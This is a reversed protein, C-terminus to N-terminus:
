RPELIQHLHSPLTRSMHIPLEISLGFEYRNICLGIVVDHWWTSQSFGLPKRALRKIRTRWTLHKREIAQTKAKGVPHFAPALHREDAGWGDTEFQNLGFPV